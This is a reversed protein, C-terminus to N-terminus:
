STASFNFDNQDGNEAEDWVRLSQCPNNFLKKLLKWM